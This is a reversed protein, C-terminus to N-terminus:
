TASSLMNLFSAYMESPLGRLLSDIGSSCIRDRNSAICPFIHADVEGIGSPKQENARTREGVTSVRAAWRSLDLAFPAICRTEMRM